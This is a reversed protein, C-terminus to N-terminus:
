GLTYPHCDMLTHIAHVHICPMTGHRGPQCARLITGCGMGCSRRSLTRTCSPSPHHAPTAGCGLSPWYVRAPVHTQSPRPLIHTRFKRYCLLTIPRCVLLGECASLICEGM